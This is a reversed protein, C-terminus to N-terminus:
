SSIEELSVRVSMGPFLTKGTIDIDRLMCDLQCMFNVM